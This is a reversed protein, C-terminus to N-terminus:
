PPRTTLGAVCIRKSRLFHRPSSLNRPKKVPSLADQLVSTLACVSDHLQSALFQNREKASWQTPDALRELTAPGHASDTVEFETEGEQFVPRVFYITATDPSHAIEFDDLVAEPSPSESAASAQLPRLLYRPLM